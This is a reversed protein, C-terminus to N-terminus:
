RVFWWEQGILWAVQFQLVRGLASRRVLRLLHGSGATTEISRQLVPKLNRQRPKTNCPKELGSTLSAHSPVSNPKVLAQYILAKPSTNAFCGTPTKTAAANGPHSHIVFSSTSRRPWPSSQM